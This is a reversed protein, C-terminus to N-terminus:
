YGLTDLILFIKIRPTRQRRIITVINCLTKEPPCLSCDEGHLCPVDLGFRQANRPAAITRIRELAAPVDAVIKNTGAFIFVQKPGFIQAAVRNGIGDINVLEGQETIANTGTIYYDALLGQRRLELQEERTLGEKYQNFLRYNGQQLASLLGIERVTYSGGFGISAGEKIETLAKKTAEEGSACIEVMFGNRLLNDKVKAVIDNNIM